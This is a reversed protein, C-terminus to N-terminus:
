ISDDFMQNSVLSSNGNANLGDACNRIIQEFDSSMSNFHDMSNTIIPVSLNDCFSPTVYDVAPNNGLTIKIWTEGFLDVSMDLLYSEQNGYTLDFIVEQELRRKFLEYNQTLDANTLSNAYSIVTSMQVGHSYNTSRFIIKSILLEMMLAPVAHSLITAVVTEITSGNWFETQGARHLQTQQTVGQIIFNTVNSTNHDITCLQPYTFCHSIAIGNSDSIARIFPNDYASNEYLNNKALSYIDQDSQGFPVQLTAAIYTDLVKAIYNTGINNSRTSRVPDQKIFNRTDLFAGPSTHDIAAGYHQSQIGVILDHPRLSLKGQRQAINSNWDHDSLLQVSDVVRDQTITGVPTVQTLQTITTISNILFNMRPDIANSSTIGDYDTYGQIYYTLSSGTSFLSDVILVFRIRPNEWGNPIIVPGEPTAAPSIVNVAAGALLSGNIRDGNNNQVRDVLASM